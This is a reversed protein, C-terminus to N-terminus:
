YCKGCELFSTFISLRHISAAELRCRKVSESAGMNSPMGRSHLQCLDPMHGNLRGICCGLQHQSLLQKMLHNAAAAHSAILLIGLSGNKDLCTSSIGFM